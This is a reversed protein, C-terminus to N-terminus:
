QMVLQVAFRRHLALGIAICIIAYGFTYGIDCGAFAHYFPSISARAAEIGHAIPNYLLWDRYPSPVTSIPFIVGSLMYIPAMVLKLIKDLEPVLESAVSTILGYGLGILWIGLFAGLLLLPDHPFVGIDFLFTGAFMVAAIIVTLFGELFARILITDVPKVQRYAFLTKNADVANKTQTGTRMFMFMVLLGVVLWIGVHMGSVARIRMVSFILMMLVMHTVPEFLLWVWAARGTALRTIAERLFLARWVSLTITLPSPAFQSASPITM